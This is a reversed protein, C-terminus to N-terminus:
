AKRCILNVSKVLALFSISGIIYVERNVWIFRNIDPPFSYFMAHQVLVFTVLLGVNLLVLNWMIKRLLLTANSEDISYFLNATRSGGQNNANITKM